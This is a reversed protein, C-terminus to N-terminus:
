QVYNDTAQLAIRSRSANHIRKPLKICKGNTVRQQKASFISIGNEYRVAMSHAGTCGYQSSFLKKLHHGTRHPSMPLSMRMLFTNAASEIM